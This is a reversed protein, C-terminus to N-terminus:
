PQTWESTTSTDPELTPFVFDRKARIAAGYGFRYDDAYARLEQSDSEFLTFRFRREAVRGEDWAAQVTIRYDGPEWRFHENFFATM